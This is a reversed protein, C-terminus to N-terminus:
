GGVDLEALMEAIARQQPAGEFVAARGGRAMVDRAIEGARALADDGSAVLVVLGGGAALALATDRADDRRVDLVRPDPM